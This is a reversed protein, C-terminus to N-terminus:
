APLFQLCFMMLLLVTVSLFLKKWAKDAKSAASECFTKLGVFGVFYVTSIVVTQIWTGYALAHPLGGFLLCVAFVPVYLINKKITLM